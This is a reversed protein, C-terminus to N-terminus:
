LGAAMLVLAAAVGWLGPAALAVALAVPAGFAALAVARKTPYLRM